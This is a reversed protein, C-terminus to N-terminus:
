RCQLLCSPSDASRLADVKFVQAVLEYDRGVDRLQIVHPVVVGMAGLKQLGSRLSPRSVGIEVALDREPPLRDGQRLEGGEILRRVHEVVRGAAQDPRRGSSTPGKLKAPM